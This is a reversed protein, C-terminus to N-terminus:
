PGLLGLRRALDSVMRREPDLRDRVERWEDLRPYMEAVLEPRCRSDKALYLRGGADVVARDLDDLLDALQTSGAPVDLALTWGPAPFSLPGPDADGFSKLVALFSPARLDSLAQLCRRLTDEEGFPVLCQWQVFGRPGYLRNWGAAMDLPHFFRTITQIEGRGHAPAHRFLAENFLGVSFRNLVWNPAPPAPLPPRPDFALPGELEFDGQTLVSRGLHRGRALLDVWAVSYRYRHQGDRLRALLEDLDAVRDTDVRIRSSGIPRLGITAEVITGTLGMGGCTAWFEEPTGGPTLTRVAGDPTALVLSRVHNCFTGVAHHDKGHIDSAIAGGVTVFRTGPTVAVFWGAPVIERLLDELSMGAAVRVVGAERDFALIGSVGTADVVLGGANQAADGYSRGLGRAVVGRAGADTGAKALEAPSTPRAVDAASPATRGWGALLRRRDGDSM